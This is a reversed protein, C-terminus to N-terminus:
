PRVTRRMKMRSSGGNKGLCFNELANEKLSFFEAADRVADKNNMGALKCWVDVREKALMMRAEARTREYAPTRPKHNPRVLEYRELLDALLPGVEPPIPPSRNLLAKLPEMNRRRDFQDLADLWPGLRRLQDDTFWFARHSVPIFYQGPGIKYQDFTKRVEASIKKIEQQLLAQEAPHDWFWLANM